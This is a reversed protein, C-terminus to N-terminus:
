GVNSNEMGWMKSDTDGSDLGALDFQLEFSQQVNMTADDRRVWEERGGVGQAMLPDVPLIYGALEPSPLDIDPMWSLDVM